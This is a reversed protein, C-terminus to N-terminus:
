DLKEMLKLIRYVSKLVAGRDMKGSRLLGLPDCPRVPNEYGNNVEEPMKVDVGANIEEDLTSLVWWDTMVLGDYGWEGRLVGNIAEWNANVLTGNLPNYALMLAWPKAKKVVIEFGRLYIERLARM